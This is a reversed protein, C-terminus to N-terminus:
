PGRRGGSIARTSSRAADAGPTASTTSAVLSRGAVVPQRVGDLAEADADVAARLGVDQPAEAVGRVGGAGLDHDADRAVAREGVRRHNAPAGGRPRGGDPAAVLGVGMLVWGVAYVLVFEAM